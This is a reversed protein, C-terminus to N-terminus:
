ARVQGSVRGLGFLEIWLESRQSMFNLLLISSSGHLLLGENGDSVRLCPKEYKQKSVFGHRPLFCPKSSKRATNNYCTELFHHLQHFSRARLLWQWNYEIILYRMFLTHFFTAIVYHNQASFFTKINKQVEVSMSSTLMPESCWEMWFSFLV